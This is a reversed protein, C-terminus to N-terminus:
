ETCKPPNLKENEDELREIREDIDFALIRFTKGM